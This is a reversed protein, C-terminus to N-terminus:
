RGAEAAPLAVTALGYEKSNEDVVGVSVREAHQDVALTVDYTFHSAKARALQDKPITFPQNHQEVDTMVGLGGGSAVFVTFSGGGNEDLMLAGIPVRVAIQASRRKDPLPTVSSVAATIPIKKADFPLFLNAVVRDKMRTADSKEVVERRTRVNHSGNKLKVAIRRTADGSSSTARYGLSYYSDLDDVVRPLFDIINRDGWAMQGGTKEAIESLATTENMLVDQNFSSRRVDADSDNKQIDIRNEMPDHRQVDGLGAPYVPYITVGFSNAAAVLADRFKRTDLESEFKQPIPGEFREVGAFRGFRNTGMVLIKRGEAGAMSEMVSRAAASKEWIWFWELKARRFTNDTAIDSSDNAPQPSFKQTPSAERLFQQYREEAVRDRRESSAADIAVSTISTEFATLAKELKAVDDTFNQHVTIGVDWSVVSAADGPRVSNRVFGRLAEFLPKTRDPHMTFRELFIVITRKAPSAAAADVGTKGDTGGDYETFNTIPQVKGNERIEFDAATLGRVRNGQKDTVLVDLNIITVDITEGTTLSQASAPYPLLLVFAMVVALSRRM